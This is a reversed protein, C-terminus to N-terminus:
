GDICAARRYGTSAIRCSHHHELRNAQGLLVAAAVAPQQGDEVADVELHSAALHQGDDARAPGPLAREEMEESREVRGRAPADHEVALCERIKGLLPEGGNPIPLDPEHELEM